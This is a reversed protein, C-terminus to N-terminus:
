VEIGGDPLSSFLASRIPLPRRHTFILRRTPETKTVM